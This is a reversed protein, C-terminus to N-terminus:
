GLVVRADAVAVGREFVFLPNVDLERIRAHDMALESVRLLV